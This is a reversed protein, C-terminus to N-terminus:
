PTTSALMREPTVVVSAVERRRGPVSLAGLTIGSVLLAAVLLQRDARIQACAVETTLDSLGVPTEALAPTCGLDALPVPTGGVVLGGLLLASAALRLPLAQVSM